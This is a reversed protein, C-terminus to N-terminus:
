KKARAGLHFLTRDMFLYSGVIGLANQVFESVNGVTGVQYLAMALVGAVVAPRQLQIVAAVWPYSQQAGGAENMAKFRDIDIQALRVVEDITAPKFQDPRVWRDIAANGLKGLLPGFAGLLTIPDM